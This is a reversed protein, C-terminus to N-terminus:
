WKLLFSGEFNHYRGYLDRLELTYIYVGVPCANNMFTGDWQDFPDDSRFMIEGWRNFITFRYESTYQVGAPGFWDNHGDNNPSFVNPIFIKLPGSIFIYETKSNYCDYQDSIRLTVKLTLSDIVNLTTDNSYAKGFSDFDWLIDKTQKSTNTFKVFTNDNFGDRFYTKFDVIPLDRVLANTPAIMTDICSQGSNVILKVKYSGAQAYRHKAPLDVSSNNDGFDWLLSEPDAGSIVANFVTSDNLCVPAIPAILANSKRNIFVSMTDTSICGSDSEATLEVLFQGSSLYKKSPPNQLVSGTNDGFNWKYQKIQGEAISSTNNFVFAHGNFCQVKDSVLFGAVPAANVSVQLKSLGDCFSASRTKIQVDKKGRQPFQIDNLYPAGGASDNPYYWKYSIISDGPFLPTFLFDFDQDNECQSIKNVGITGTPNNHLRVQQIISDKCGFSNEVKLRVSHLGATSFYLTLSDLESSSGNTYLWDAVTITGTDSVSTNYLKFQHADFCQVSDNISFGAKINGSIYVPKVASDRCSQPSVAILKVDYEGMTNYLHAPHSDLSEQMDGFYWHYSLPKHPSGTLNLFKVSDQLCNVNKLVQFDANPNEYITITRIATDFCGNNYEYMLRAFYSGPASYTRPGPPNNRSIIYGESFYWKYWQYLSTDVVTRNIFTVQNANFCSDVNVVDFEAHPSPYMTFQQFTDHWCGTEAYVRLKVLYQGPRNFTNSVVSDNNEFELIGFDWVNRVISDPSYSRNYYTVPRNNSECFGTDTSNFVATPLPYNVLRITDMSVCTNREKVIISYEGPVKFNRMYSTGNDNWLYENAYNLDKAYVNLDLKGCVITDKVFVNNNDILIDGPGAHSVYIRKTVSDYANGTKQQFYLVTNFWGTDKYPHRVLAGAATPSGDGFNWTFNYYDSTNLVQFKISDLKCGMDYIFNNRVPRTNSQGQYAHAHVNGYGYVYYNFPNVSSLFHTGSDLFVQAYSKGPIINSANWERNRIKKGNLLISATDATNCIINVYNEPAVLTDGYWFDFKSITSIWGSKTDFTDATLNLQEHDGLKFKPLSHGSCFGGKIFQTVSIPKDAIVKTVLRSTVNFTFHEGENLIRSFAGNIYVRTNKQSAVIKLYYGSHMEKFPLATYSRGWSVTPIMQELGYDDGSKCVVGNSDPLASGTLKDGAFVAFRSLSDKARIISGTLDRRRSVFYFTEGQKLEIYFPKFPQDNNQASGAIPIIEIKSLPSIGTVIMQPAVNQFQGGICTFVKSETNTTVIYEPGYPISNVPLIAAAGKSRNITFSDTQIAYVVTIDSDSVLHVSFNSIIDSHYYHLPYAYEQFKFYQTKNPVLTASAPNAGLNNPNIFQVTAAYPSTVYIGQTPNTTDYCLFFYEMNSIYFDKGVYGQSYTIQIKLVCLFCFLAIRKSM